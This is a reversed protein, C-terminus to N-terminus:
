IIGRECSLNVKGSPVEELWIELKERKIEPTRLDRERIM